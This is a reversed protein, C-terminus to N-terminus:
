RHTRAASAWVLDITDASSWSWRSLSGHLLEGDQRRQEGGGSGQDRAAGPRGWPRGPFASDFARFFRAFCLRTSRLAPSEPKQWAAARRARISALSRGAFFPGMVVTARVEDVTKGLMPAFSQLETAPFDALKPRWSSYDELRVEHGLAACAKVVEPWVVPNPNGLHFVKGTTDSRSALHVIADAVFDVPSLDIVLDFAPATGMEVCGRILACVFNRKGAVGTKSDWGVFSPRYTTVLLGRDKATSILREAVWKSQAYGYKLAEWHLHIGEEVVVENAGDGTLVAAVSSVHHVRTGDGCSALRLVEHTGCVNVGKMMGYPLVFNVSAAAHFIASLGAGLRSFDGQSLGFYPRSLDGPVVKVRGDWEDRWVLNGVMAEKLRRLGEEQDNCRILCHVTVRTQSLLAYVIRRGLFGSAGTVLVEGDLDSPRATPRTSGARPRVTEDLVVEAQLDIRAM